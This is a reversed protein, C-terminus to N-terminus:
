RRDTLGLVSGRFREEVFSNEAKAADAGASVAAVAPTLPTHAAAPVDPMQGFVRAALLEVDYGEHRVREDVYLLSLGLTWVPMMLITGVEWVVQYGIAYWAPWESQDLTFLEVGSVYGVWGLPILLLMSASYTAFTTFLFMAMLRRANHRALSVSRAVADFVGRGEVLMAQPVYAARGFLWFFVFLAAFTGAAFLALGVTAGMWVPVGGLSAFMALLAAAAVTAYWIFFALGASFLVWGGVLVSAALLGLFRARVNRYIARASVPEGWLLHMVLNRSAGGMVVWHMLLGVAWLGVGLAALVFYVALRGGSETAGLARGAVTLLVGGVATVLVPPASARVLPTFNRRYLRVTRDILDGAGLPALQSENVALTAM